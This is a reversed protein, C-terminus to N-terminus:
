YSVIYLIYYILSDLCSMWSQQFHRSDVEHGQPSDWVGILWRLFRQRPKRQKGWFRCFMESGNTSLGRSERLFWGKKSTSHADWKALPKFVRLWGSGLLFFGPSIGDIAPHPTEVHDGRTRLPRRPWFYRSGPKETNPDSRLTRYQHGPFMASIMVVLSFFLFPLYGETYPIDFYSNFM